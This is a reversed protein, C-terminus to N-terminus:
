ADTLVGAEKEGRSRRHHRSGSAGNGQAGRTGEAAPIVALTPLALFQEVDRETHLTKDRLEGVLMTLLGLMFGSGAGALTFVIPNPYAPGAPLSPPDVVLYLEQGERPTSEAQMRAADQKALLSEYFAKATAVERTLERSESELTARNALRAQSALIRQQLREEEQTKEQITLDLERIRARWQAAQPPESAPAGDRMTGAAQADAKKAEDIKKQLRAVDARLKVVDPHDPTYRAELTVLSAQETALEQELAQVDASGAKRSTLGVPQQAQLSEVLAAREQQARRVAEGDAEMQAKYGAVSNEADGGYESDLQEAHRRMFAARKAEQEGLKRKAEEVQKALPDSTEHAQQERSRANEQHFWAVVEACVRQALSPNGAACSVTFAASAPSANGSTTSANIPALVINRRLESARDALAVTDKEPPFLGFRQVLDQLRASTLVEGQIVALRSAVPEATGAAGHGTWLITASSTYKAPIVHGVGYGAAAGCFVWALAWKGRRRWMGPFGEASLRRHGLM